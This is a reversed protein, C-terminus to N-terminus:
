GSRPSAQPNRPSDGPGPDRRADVRVRSGLRGAYRAGIPQAHPRVALLSGTSPRRPAANANPGARVPERPVHPPTRKPPTLSECCLAGSAARGIWSPRRCPISARKLHHTSGAERVKTLVEPQWADVGRVELRLERREVGLDNQRSRRVHEDLPVVEGVHGAQLVLPSLPRVGLEAPRHADPLKRGGRRGSWKASRAAAGGASTANSRMGSTRASLTPGGPPSVRGEPLALSRLAMLSMM